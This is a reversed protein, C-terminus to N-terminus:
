QAAEQPQIFQLIQTVADTLAAVQEQLDAVTADGEAGQAVRQASEIGSIHAEHDSRDAAREQLSLDAAGKIAQLEIKKDEQDLKRHQLMLDGEKAAKEAKLAQNEQGLQQLQEQLQGIQQQIGQQMQQFAQPNPPMGSPEPDVFREPNKFENAEVFLRIAESFHQPRVVGAQAGQMMVQLLAMIRASQQEKSGSGLGINIKTHYQNRFESPNIPVFQGNIAVMEAVNQYQIALKLMKAFLQRMGVGFFRAMLEMRMDAKATLLETGRATKNLANQDTGASYRNFGTRNEAWSAIYENFQYAPAGLAPVQIPTIADGAPGEGRIVGGPRSDLVDDINVRANMNVYTRQNTSLFMNDQIARITHTRLKQPQIARDAPCDGYFSHPRPIPCIWVYPHDDVQEIAPKGGEVYVAVKEEILCVKIWEAIGDGDADLKIYCEDYRFLEHSDHPASYTFDGAEGLAEMSEMNTAYSGSTGVDSLDYGDQELEFRRRYFCQGIAAPEAGWRANQDVRMESSPCAMAKVKRHRSEKRVTFNLLGTAEDLEPDGELQWGDQLLMAAQEQTQGEYRQKADEAEEEAWVKAFGVKNLLADKFWDHVVGVGDNRVYFLHNVYATALKAEQEAGPQGQGEFTVADDSSVFMRMIQPLMGDVTDAVDTAVFDSRDEIEPPALEGEAEANYYELNRLRAHGVDSDPAGMATRLFDRATQEIQEDTLKDTV